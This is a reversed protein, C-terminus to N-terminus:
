EPILPRSLESFRKKSSQANHSSALQPLGRLLTQPRGSDTIIVM